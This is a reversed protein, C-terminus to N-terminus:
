DCGRCSPDSEHYLNNQDMWFSPHEWYHVLSTITGPMILVWCSQDELVPEKLFPDVIGVAYEWRAKKIEGNTHVYVPDGPELKEAATCPAVAIHTADRRATTQDPILEGLKVGLETARHRAMPSDDTMKPTLKEKLLDLSSQISTSGNIDWTVGALECLKKEMDLHFQSFRQQAQELDAIQQQLPTM